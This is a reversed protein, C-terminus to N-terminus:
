KIAGFGIGTSNGLGVNWIFQKVEQSGKIIVPCWNVKNQIGRYSVMMTKAQYFSSDFYVEFSDDNLGSKRMKTLLTEKLFQTARSDTYLVHEINEGARRKILVPSGLLFREKNLLDPNDEIFVDSVIFGFFMSPDERIGKLLQKIRGVDFASIFFIANKEFLLGENTVKGGSLRSFSFLALEGHQNNWGLWKHLCGVLLHQHDFPIISGNTKIKLHLRM